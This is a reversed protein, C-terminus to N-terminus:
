PKRLRNLAEQAQNKWQEVSAESCKKNQTHEIAREYYDIAQGSDDISEFSKGMFYYLEGCDPLQEYRNVLKHMKMIANPYMANTYIAVAGNKERKYWTDASESVAISDIVTKSGHVVSVNGIKLKAKNEVAPLKEVKKSMLYLFLDKKQLNRLDGIDLAAHSGLRFIRGDALKLTTKGSTGTLITDIDELLMGVKAAQWQENLGKRVKVDGEIGTIEVHNAFGVSMTCLIIILITIRKKM